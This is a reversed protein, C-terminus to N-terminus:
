HRRPGQRSPSTPGGGRPRDSGGPRRLGNGLGGGDPASTPAPEVLAGWAGLREYLLEPTTSYLRSLSTLDSRRLRLVDRSSESRLVQVIAIWRRLPGTRTPPLKRLRRLDIILPPLGEVDRRETTPPVLLTAPVDYLEALEVLRHVRMVRSGREYAGLTGATWRGDTIEQVDLLSMGRRNRVARLRRGLEVAYDADTM